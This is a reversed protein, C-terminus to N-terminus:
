FMWKREQPIYVVGNKRNKSEQPRNKHPESYYIYMM